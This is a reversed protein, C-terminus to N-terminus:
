VSSTISVQAAVTSAVNDDLLAPPFRWCVRPLWIPRELRGIEPQITGLHIHHIHVAIAIGIDHTRSCMSVAHPPVLLPTIGSSPSGPFQALEIAIIRLGM